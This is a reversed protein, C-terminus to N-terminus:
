RKSLFQLTFNWCLPLIDLSPLFFFVSQPSHNWHHAYVIRLDSRHPANYTCSHYVTLRVNQTAAHAKLKLSIDLLTNIGHAGILLSFQKVQKSLLLRQLIKTLIDRSLNEGLIEPSLYLGVAPSLFGEIATCLNTIWEETQPAYEGRTSLPPLDALYIYQTPNANLDTLLLPPSAEAGQIAAERLMLQVKKMDVLQACSLQGKRTLGVWLRCASEAETEVLYIDAM